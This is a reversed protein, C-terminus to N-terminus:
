KGSQQHEQRAKIADITIRFRGIEKLLEYREPGHPLQRVTDLLKALKEELDRM